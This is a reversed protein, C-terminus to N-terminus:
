RDGRPDGASLPRFRQDLPEFQQDLRGKLTLSYLLYLSPVLVLMGLGVGVLTAILTADGAAARELTLQEPLLYPSQAFAWGVTVCAVAAAASFRALEYRQAWVLWLTVGGAIASAIVFVLGGGSTLGDFLPRADDRLVVLGGIAIVGAAIGAILARARFARQMDPLGARVSDGAMYVAALYAGTIVALAGVLIGTPNLWSSIPDGTANGVPVRGSGIAGLCAGFCFPVLVSSSAFLAGLLRAEGITAAQGRLAFAAGRFIIGVVAILMPVYLTSFISGFAVPFCTWMIVLVFILWVHNAEWVPGMSREVMGRVRGGREAGGATLDWFGGGFDAGGLVAYATIGAIVLALSVEPM